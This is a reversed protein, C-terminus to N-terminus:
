IIWSVRRNPVSQRPRDIIKLSNILAWIIGEKDEPESKFRSFDVARLKNERLKPTYDYNAPPWDEMCYWWRRLIGRIISDKPQLGSGTVKTKERSKSSVNNSKKSAELSKKEPKKVPVHTSQNQIPKPKDLLIKWNKKKLNSSSILKPKEDDSSIEGKFLSDESDSFNKKQKTVPTRNKTVPTKKEIKPRSKETSESKKKIETVKNQPANPKKEHNEKEKGEKEKAPLTKEKPGLKEKPHEKEKHLSDKEKAHHDKHDKDKNHHDKDKGLHVSDKHSHEKDGNSVTKEEKPESPPNKLTSSNNNEPSISQKEKPPVPKSGKKASNHPYDKRELPEKEQKTPKALLNSFDEEDSDIAIKKTKQRKSTM